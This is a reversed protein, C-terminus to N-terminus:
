TDISPPFNGLQMFMGFWDELHWTRTIQRGDLEHFEHIRVSVKKGTAPIGFLMGKHTGIMEARVGIRGPVQIMDDVVIQVDPLAEIIGRIIPKLGAPGPGQGPALPIDNWDASVAIDMLDPNQDSFARYLTEVAEREARMRKSDDTPTELFRM